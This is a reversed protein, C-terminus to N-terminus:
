GWRFVLVTDDGVIVRRSATEIVARAAPSVLRNWSTPDAVVWGRPHTQLYRITAAADPVLESGCLIDHDGDMFPAAAATTRLWDGCRGLSWALALPETGLIADHTGGAARIAAAAAKWNPRPIVRGPHSASPLGWVGLVGSVSLAGAVLAVVPAAAFAPRKRWLFRVIEAVGVGVAAALFPAFHVLYRRDLGPGDASRFLVALLLPPVVLHLALNWGDLGARRLGAIVAPILPIWAWWAVLGFLNGLTALHLGPDLSLDPVPHRVIRVFGDRIGPVVAIVLTGAVVLGAFGLMTLARGHREGEPASRWALLGYLALPAVLVIGAVQLHLAVAFAALGGVGARWSRTAIARSCLVAAVGYALVFAAYFRASRSHAVHLPMVAVVAAAAIAATEGFRRRVVLWMLPITALGVVASPLRAAAENEGFVKMSAAVAATQAYARRYENGSPLVPGHGAIMSKAAIAHPFEDAWLSLRGLSAFRLYGGAVILLSLAILTWPLARRTNAGRREPGAPRAPSRLELSSM